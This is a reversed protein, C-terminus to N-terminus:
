PPTPPGPGRVHEAVALYALKTDPHHGPIRSRLHPLMRWPEELERLSQGSALDSRGGPTSCVDDVHEM